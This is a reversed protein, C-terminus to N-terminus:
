NFVVHLHQKEENFNCMVRYSKDSDTTCITAIHLSSSNNKLCGALNTDWNLDVIPKEFGHSAHGTETGGTITTPGCKQKVAILDDVTRAPLGELSTCKPNTPDSCNGSSQIGIGAARLKERAQADTLINEAYKVQGAAPPGETTGTGYISSQTYCSFTYWNTKQIGLGPKVSLVWMVTNVILWATLVFTFGVLSNTLFTKASTMLTSNGSSVIYVVGAIFIAVVTVTILLASGYDILKKIGIIFHCLTCANDRNDGSGCPVLPTIDAGVEKIPLFIFVLIIALSILSPKLFSQKM